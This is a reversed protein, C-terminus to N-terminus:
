KGKEAYHVMFSSHGLVIRIPADKTVSVMQAKELADLKDSGTILLHIHDSNSLVPATLSIRREPVGDPNVCALAKNGKPNLAEELGEAGPFLSATHMDAGMGLVCVDIPLVYQILSEVEGLDTADGGNGTMLANFNANSAQNQKLNDKILKANSRPSTEDVVREDTPIISINSWDLSKHSLCQLFPAPTTGGPVALTARGKSSVANSLQDVVISALTEAQEAISAYKTVDIM